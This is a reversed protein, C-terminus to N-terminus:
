FNHLDSKLADSKEEKTEASKTEELVQENKKHAEEYAKQIKQSKEIWASVKGYIWNLIPVALDALLKSLFAM